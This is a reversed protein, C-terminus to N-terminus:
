IGDVCIQYQKKTQTDIVKLYINDSCKAQPKYYEMFDTMQKVSLPKSQPDIFAPHTYVVKPLKKSDVYAVEITDQWRIRSPTPTPAPKMLEAFQQKERQENDKSELHALMALFIIVVGMYLTYFARM